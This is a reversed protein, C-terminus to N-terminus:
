GGERPETARSASAGRASEDLVSRVLKLLDLPLFPKRLLARDGNLSGREIEHSYGTMFILGLEPHHTAVYDSLEAGTMRPMVLDTLVLDIDNRHQELIHRAAEGNSAELVRYGHDRL